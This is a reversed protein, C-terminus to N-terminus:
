FEDKDITYNANSSQRINKVIGTMDVNKKFQGNEYEQFTINNLNDGPFANMYEKRSRFTNNKFSQQNWTKIPNELVNKVNKYKAKIGFYPAVVIGGWILALAGGGEDDDDDDYSSAFVLSCYGITLITAILILVAMLSRFKIPSLPVEGVVKGTQGNVAYSYKKGKFNTNLFWVPM